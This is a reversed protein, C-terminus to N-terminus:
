LGEQTGVIDPKYFLIQNVLTEKRNDWNNDGDNPNDYRINYTMLKINQGHSFSLAIGFLLLLKKIM